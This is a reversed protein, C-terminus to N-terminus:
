KAGGAQMVAYTSVGGILLGIVAWVIPATKTAAVKDELEQDQRMHREFTDTDACVQTETSRWGKLPAGEPTAQALLAAAVVGTIM